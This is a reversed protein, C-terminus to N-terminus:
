CSKVESEKRPRGVKRPTDKFKMLDEHKIYYNRGRLEANLKGNMITHTLTDPKIGLVEAAEPVNYEEPEGFFRRKLFAAFAQMEDQYEKLKAVKEEQSRINQLDAGHSQLVCEGSITREIILHRDYDMDHQKYFADLYKTLKLEEQVHLKQVRATIAYYEDCLKTRDEGAANQYAKLARRQEDELESVDIGVVGARIWPHANGWDLHGECSATTNIGAANFAVVANMIGPDIKTGCGDVVRAFHKELDEWVQNKSAVLM